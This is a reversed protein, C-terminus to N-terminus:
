RPKIDVVIPVNNPNYDGNMNCANISLCPNDGDIRRRIGFHNHLHGYIYTTPKSISLLKENPGHVLLIDIPENYEQLVRIADDHYENGQFAKNNSTGHSVPSGFITIGDLKIITNNLVICNTFWEQLQEKSAEQLLRDHNGAIVVRHKANITGLWSNFEKYKRICENDTYYRSTMLIDGGHIFVDSTPVEPITYHREHTDSIVAIRISGDDKNPLDQNLLLRGKCSPDNHKTFLCEKLNNNKSRGLRFYLFINFIIDTM